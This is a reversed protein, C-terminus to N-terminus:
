DICGKHFNHTTLPSQNEQHSECVSWLALPLDYFLSLSKHSAEWGGGSVAM